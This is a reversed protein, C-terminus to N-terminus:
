SRVALLTRTTERTQSQPAALRDATRAPCSLLPQRLSGRRLPTLSVVTWTGNVQLPLQAQLGVKGAATPLPRAGPLREM